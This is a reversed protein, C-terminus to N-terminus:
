LMRAFYTNLFQTSVTAAQSTDALSFDLRFYFAARHALVSQTLPGVLLTVATDAYPPLPRSGSGLLSVQNLYIQRAVSDPIAHVILATATSGSPGDLTQHAYSEAGLNTYVSWSGNIPGGFDQRDYESCVGAPLWGAIDNSDLCFALPPQLTVKMALTDLAVHGDSDTVRAICLYVGSSGPATVVTDLATANVFTGGFLSWAFEVLTGASDYSDAHLPVVSNVVIRVTDDGFRVVPLASLHNVTITVWEWAGPQTNGILKAGRGILKDSLSYVNVTLTRSPGPPFSIDGSFRTRDSSIAMEARVSDMDPGSVVAEIRAVSDLAIQKSLSVSPV